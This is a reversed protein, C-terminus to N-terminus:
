DNESYTTMYGDYKLNIFKERDINLYIKKGIYFLFYAAISFLLIFEFKEIYNKKALIFLMLSIPLYLPTLKHIVYTSLSFKQSFTLMKQQNLDENEKSYEKEIYEKQYHWYYSNYSYYSAICVNVLLLAGSAINNILLDFDFIYKFISFYMFELIWVTMFVLIFTAFFANFRNRGDKTKKFREQLSM